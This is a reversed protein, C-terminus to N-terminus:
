VHHTALLALALQNGEQLIPVADFLRDRFATWPMEIVRIIEGLDPSPPREQSVGLALFGHVVCNLRSSFPFLQALPLWNGHAFGTEELLERKAAALPTEGPEVHGAPIELSTRDVAYRYQNVLVVARKETIAVVNVSDSVDLTHFPTLVRGNPLQVTDSRLRLWEDSYTITSTLTTWSLRTTDEVPV